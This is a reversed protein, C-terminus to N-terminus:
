VRLQQLATLQPLVAALAAMGVARFDADSLDLQKLASLKPLVAALSVARGALCSATAALRAGHQREVEAGVLLLLVLHSLLHSFSQHLRLPTVWRWGQHAALAPRAAHARSAHLSLM